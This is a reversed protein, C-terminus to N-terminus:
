CGYPNQGRAVAKRFARALLEESDAGGLWAQKKNVFVERVLKEPLPSRATLGEFVEEGLQPLLLEEVLCQYSLGFVASAPSERNM